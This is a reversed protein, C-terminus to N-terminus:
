FKETFEEYFKLEEDLTTDIDIFTQLIQKMENYKEYGNDFDAFATHVMAGYVGCTIACYRECKELTIRCTNKYEEDALITGGESGIAGSVYLNEWM